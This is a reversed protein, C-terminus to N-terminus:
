WPGSVPAPDRAPRARLDHRRAHQGQTQGVGDLHYEIPDEVTLINRTADNLLRWRRTCHRPRASGTPRDGPHATRAISSNTSRAHMDRGHRARSISAAWGAQRAPLVGRARRPRCSDDVRSVDFPRGAIRLGIRGDAAATERRHRAQGHGSARSRGAGRDLAAACLVRAARRSRFRVVLRNEYPERPHRLREGQRRRFCRMSSGSSGRTTTPSWSIRRARAARGSAWFTSAPISATPSTARM